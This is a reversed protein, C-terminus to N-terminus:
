AAVFFFADNIRNSAFTPFNVRNGTLGVGEGDIGLLVPRRPHNMNPVWM